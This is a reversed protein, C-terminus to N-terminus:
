TIGASDNHLVIRVSFIRRILFFLLDRPWIRNCTKYPVLPKAHGGLSKKQAHIETLYIMFSTCFHIKVQFFAYKTELSTFSSNSNFLFGKLRHGFRVWRSLKTAHFKFVCIYIATRLTEKVWEDMIKKEQGGLNLSQINILNRDIRRSAVSPEGLACDVQTGPCPSVSRTGTVSCRRNRQKMQCEQLHGGRKNM